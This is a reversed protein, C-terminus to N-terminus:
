KVQVSAEQPVRNVDAEALVFRRRVDVPIRMLDVPTAVLPAPVEGEPPAKGNGTSAPLCTDQGIRGEM